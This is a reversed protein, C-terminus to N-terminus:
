LPCIGSRAAWHGLAAYGTVGAVILVLAVASGIVYRGYKAWADAMRDRRLDATIEDFINDNM